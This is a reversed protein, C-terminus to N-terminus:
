FPMTLNISAGAEAEKKSFDVKIGKREGSFDDYALAGHRLGYEYVEKTVKVDQLCYDKLEEIKGERWYQVAQLGTGSKGYGLTSSAIADLKIRHGLSKVVEEMIDLHPLVSLDGAYYNNMVPIDFHKSNFGILRDTHELLPWLKHLEDWMFAEYQDTEYFYVGILSIKLLNPKYGGIDDFTNQTEIDFVIEKSM